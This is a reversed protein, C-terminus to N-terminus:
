RVRALQREVQVRAESAPSLRELAAEFLEAAEDSRGHRLHMAGLNAIVQGEREPDDLERLTWIAEEFYPVAEEEAGARELALAINSQTLAVGRWDGVDQLIELAARHCEAAEQCEGRKRLEVGQANLRLAERVWAEGSARGTERRSITVPRERLREVSVATAQRIGAAAGLLEGAFRRAGLVLDRRAAAAALGAAVFHRGVDHNTRSPNEGPWAAPRRWWVVGAAVVAVSAALGAVVAVAVLVDLGIAALMGALFAALGSLAGIRRRLRVGAASRELVRRFLAATSRSAM